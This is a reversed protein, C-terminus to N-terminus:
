LYEAPVECYSPLPSQAAECFPAIPDLGHGVAFVGAVVIPTLDGSIRILRRGASKGRIGVA